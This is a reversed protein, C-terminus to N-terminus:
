RGISVPEQAKAMLASEVCEEAGEVPRGDPLQEALQVPLGRVVQRLEDRAARGGEDVVPHDVARVGEVGLFERVTQEAARGGEGGAAVARWVSVV